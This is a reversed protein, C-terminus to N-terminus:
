AIGAHAEQMHNGPGQYPFTWSASLLEKTQAPWKQLSAHKQMSQWFLVLLAGMTNLARVKVRARSGM